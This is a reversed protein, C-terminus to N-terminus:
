EMVKGRLRRLEKQDSTSSRLQKLDPMFQDDYVAFHSDASDAVAAIAIVAQEQTLRMRSQLIAQLKGRLPNLYPGIIAPSAEDCFIIVAAAAHSQVRPNSAYDMVAILSPVIPAHFKEQIVPGFDTCMQGICNIAAWRARPHRDGFRGLAM